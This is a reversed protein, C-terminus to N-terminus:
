GGRVARDWADQSESLVRRDGEHLDARQKLNFACNSLRTGAERIKQARRSRERMYTRVVDEVFRPKVKCERAVEVTSWGALFLRLMRARRERGRPADLATSFRNLTV